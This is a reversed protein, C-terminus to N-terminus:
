RDERPCLREEKWDVRCVVPGPLAARRRDWCLAGGVGQLVLWWAIAFVIYQDPLNAAMLFGSAFLVVVAAFFYRSVLFTMMLFAFSGLSAAAPFIEFLMNGRLTNLSGLNFTLLFYATWVRRLLAELPGVPDAVRPGGCLRFVAWAGALEGVWVLVYGAPEMYQRGVTLYHCFSFALLHLWGVLILALGWNRRRAVRRLQEIQAAGACTPTMTM